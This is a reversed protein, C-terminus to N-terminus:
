EFLAVFKWWKVVGLVVQQCVFHRDCQSWLYTVDSWGIYLADSIIVKSNFKSSFGVIFFYSFWNVDTLTIAFCIPDPKKVWPTFHCPAMVWKISEMSFVPLPVDDFSCATVKHMLTVLAWCYSLHAVTAVISMPRFSSPHQAGKAPAPVGDLVILGGGLDVETGLSTKMWGAM